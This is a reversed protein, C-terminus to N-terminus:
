VPSVEHISRKDWEKVNLSRKIRAIYLLDDQTFSCKYEPISPSSLLKSKKCSIMNTCGTTCHTGILRLCLMLICFTQM